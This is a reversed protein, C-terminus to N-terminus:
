RWDRSAFRLVLFAPDTLVIIGINQLSIQDGVFAPSESRLSLERWRNQSLERAIEGM